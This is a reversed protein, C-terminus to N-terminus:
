STFSRVVHGCTRRRVTHGIRHATHVGVSLEGAGARHGSVDLHHAEKADTVVRHDAGCDGDGHGDVEGQVLLLLRRIINKNTFHWAM